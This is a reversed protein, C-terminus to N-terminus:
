RGARHKRWDGGPITPAKDFSPDSGLYAEAKGGGALEVEGRQFLAPCGEAGDLAALLQRDVLYLEGQVSTQGGALLGPYEALAVLRYAATTAATGIYSSGAMVQANPEGKMLTGYVFLRVRDSM